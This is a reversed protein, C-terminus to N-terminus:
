PLFIQTQSGVRTPLLVRVTGLAWRSRPAPFPERRPESRSKMERKKEGKEQCLQPPRYESVPFAFLSSFCKRWDCGFRAGSSTKNKKPATTRNQRVSPKSMTSNQEKDSPFCVRFYWIRECLPREKRRDDRHSPGRAAREEEWFSLVFVLFDPSIFQSSSAAASSRPGAGDQEAGGSSAPGGSPCTFGWGARTTGRGSNM